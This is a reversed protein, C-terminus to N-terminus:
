DHDHIEMVYYPKKHNRRICIFTHGYRKVEHIESTLDDRLANVLVIILGNSLIGYLLSEDDKYSISTLIGSGKDKINLASWGDRSCESVNMGIYKSLENFLEDKIM